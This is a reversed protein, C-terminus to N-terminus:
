ARGGQCIPCEPWVEVAMHGDEALGHLRVEKYAWERRRDPMVLSDLAYGAMGAVVKLIDINAGACEIKETNNLQHSFRCGWCPTGPQSAQVFCYGTDADTNVALFVVPMRQQWCWRAVDVRTADNDVGCVALDANLDVGAEVAAQFTLPYGELISEETTYPALNQILAYVKPQDLDEVFFFQRNLNTPTVIDDDLCTLRKLGKKVLGHAVEGMIGGAGIGLVRREWWLEPDYGEILKARDHIDEDGEIMPYKAATQIQFGKPLASPVNTLM